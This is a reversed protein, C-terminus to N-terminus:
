KVWIMGWKEKRNIDINTHFSNNKWDSYIQPEVLYHDEEIFGFEKYGITTLYECTKNISDYQEEAWEFCIKSIKQTLGKIVELEYGEVDIKILDPQGYIENLHDITISNIKVPSNWIHNQSFRSNLIWEKSATSITHSNSIYFDIYENNKSSAVCNLITINKNNEYKSKLVNCLQPNAEILVLRCNPFKKLVSDTFLGINAGIDYILM